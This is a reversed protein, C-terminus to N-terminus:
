LIKSSYNFNRQVTIKLVARCGTNKSGKMNKSVKLFILAGLQNILGSFMGFLKLDKNINGFGNKTM